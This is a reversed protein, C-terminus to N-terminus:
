NENKEPSVPIYLGVVIGTVVAVPLAASTAMASVATAVTAVTSLTAAAMGAAGAAAAARRRYVRATSVVTYANSVVAAAQSAHSLLQSLSVNNQFYEIIPRQGMGPWPPETNDSFLDAEILEFDERTLNDPPDPVQM